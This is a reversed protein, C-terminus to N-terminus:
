ILAHQSQKYVKAPPLPLPASPRSATKEKTHKVKKAQRHRQARQKAKAAQQQHHKQKLRPDALKCTLRPCRITGAQGAVKVQRRCGPCRAQEGPNPLRPCLLVATPATLRQGCVLVDGMARQMAQEAGATQQWAGHQRAAQKALWAQAAAEGYRQRVFAVGDIDAVLSRAEEFAQRLQDKVDAPQEVVLQSFRQKLLQTAQRRRVERRQSIEFIDAYPNDVVDGVPEGFLHLQNTRESMITDLLYAVDAAGHLLEGKKVKIQTALYKTSSDPTDAITQEDVVVKLRSFLERLAWEPLDKMMLQHIAVTQTEVSASIFRLMCDSTSFYDKANDATATNSITVIDHTALQGTQLLQGALVAERAEVFSRGLYWADAAEDLSGNAALEDWPQDGMMIEGSVIPYTHAFYHITEVEEHLGSSMDAEFVREAAQTKPHHDGYRAQYARYRRATGLADVGKSTFIKEPRQRRVRALCQKTLGNLALREAESAIAAEYTPTTEGGGGGEANSFGAM